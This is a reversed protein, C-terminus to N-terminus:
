VIGAGTKSRCYRLQRAVREGEATLTRIGANYVFVDRPRDFKINAKGNVVEDFEFRKFRMIHNALDGSTLLSVFHLAFSRDSFAHQASLSQVNKFEECTGTKVKAASVEIPVVQGLYCVAGNKLTDSFFFQNPLAVHADFDHVHVSITLCSALLLSLLTTIRM